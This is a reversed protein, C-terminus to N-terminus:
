SNASYSPRKFAKSSCGKFYSLIINYFDKTSYLTRKLKYTIKILLFFHIFLSGSVPYQSEVFYQNHKLVLKVKGYSLTCLQLISM